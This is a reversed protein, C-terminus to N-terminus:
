PAINIMVSGKAGAGAAGLTYTVEVECSGETLGTVAFWGWEHVKEDAEAQPPERDEVSCVDPTLSAVSKPTNAQCVRDGGITPLVYYLDTEGADTEQGTGLVLEVGDIDAPDVVTVNISTDDIDSDIQAAGAVDGTFLHLFQQAKVSEDRRLQADGSFTVPYYGYGIVPQGNARELEYPILVRNDKLYRANETTVCSHSLKQVEPARALMNVSDGLGDDTTVKVLGNGEATAKLTFKNGSFEVVELGSGADTDVASLAVAKRSGVTAVEVDLMAGIALPKNFDNVRDDAQYSFELNGENGTLRSKCAFGLTTLLISSIILRKM